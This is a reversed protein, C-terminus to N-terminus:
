VNHKSHALGIHVSDSKMFILLAKPALRRSAHDHHLSEVHRPGLLASVGTGTQKIKRLDGNNSFDAWEWSSKKTTM